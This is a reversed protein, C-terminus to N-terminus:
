FRKFPRRDVVFYYVTLPFLIELKCRYTHYYHSPKKATYVFTFKVPPSFPTPNFSCVGEAWVRSGSWSEIM